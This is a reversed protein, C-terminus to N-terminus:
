LEDSDDAAQPNIQAELAQIRGAQRYITHLATHYREELVTPPLAVLPEIREWEAMDLIVGDLPKPMNLSIIAQDRLLDVRGVLDPNIFITTKYYDVIKILM